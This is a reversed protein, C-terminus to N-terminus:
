NELDPQTTVSEKEESQGAVGDERRLKKAAKYLQMASAPFWPEVNIECYTQLSRDKFAPINVPLNELFM